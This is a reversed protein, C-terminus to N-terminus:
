RAPTALAASLAAAFVLAQGVADSGDGQASVRVVLDDATATGTYGHDAECAPDSCGAPELDLRAVAGWGVTLVVEAPAGGAM